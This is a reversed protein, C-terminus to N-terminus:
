GVRHRYSAIKDLEIGDKEIEEGTEDWGMTGSSGFFQSASKELAEVLLWIIYGYSIVFLYRIRM